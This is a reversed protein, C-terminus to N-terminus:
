NSKKTDRKNKNINLGTWNSESLDKITNKQYPIDAIMIRVSTGSITLISLLSLLKKM